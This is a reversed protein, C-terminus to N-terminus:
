PTAKWSVVTRGDLDIEISHVEYSFGKEAAWAPVEGCKGAYLAPTGESDVLGHLTLRDDFNQAVGVVRHGFHDQIAFIGINIPPGSM